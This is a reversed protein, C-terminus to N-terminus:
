TITAVATLHPSRVELPGISHQTIKMLDSAQEASDANYVSDAGESRDPGQPLALM